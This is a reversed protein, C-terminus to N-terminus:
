AGSVLGTLTAGAPRRDGRPGHGTITAFDGGSRDILGAFRDDQRLQLEQLARKIDRGHQMSSGGSM